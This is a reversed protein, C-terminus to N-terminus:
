VTALEPEGAVPFTVASVGSTKLDDLLQRARRVDRGTVVLARGGTERVITGVKRAVGAGFVIRTATAFEFRAEM